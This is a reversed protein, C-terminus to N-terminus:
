GSVFLKFKQKILPLDESINFLNPMNLKLVLPYCALVIILLATSSCLLAIGTGELGYIPILLMMLFFSAGLSLGQFITVMGPRGSAMFVQVLIWVAGKIVAELLLIRLLLVAGLFDSGYLLRLLLPGVLMAIIAIPLSFVTSLRAAQTTLSAAETPPRDVIQPLLVTVISEQFVNLMRSLSITVVYMGMLEPSLLGVVLFQDIRGSLTKVIDVGYSRIGYSLLKRYSISLRQWQIKFRKSISILLWITLPIEPIIYAIGSTFPTITGTLLLACLIILTALPLLYRLKNSLSFEGDAELAFLLIISILKLPAICMFWQAAIIAEPPYQSLWYPIFLVGVLVTLTGLGTAMILAATILQNREKPFRKLNYLLASPLGLTMVYTLFQPCMIMAAQEGRGEAGLARATIIGTAINIALILIRTLLTQLTAFTASRGELIQRTVQVLKM